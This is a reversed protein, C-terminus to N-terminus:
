KEYFLTQFKMHVTQKASSECSIDVSIKKHFIIFFNFINGGVITIPAKLTLTDTM